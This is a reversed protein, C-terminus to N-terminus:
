NLRHRTLPMSVIITTGWDLQSEIEVAGDHLDILAIAVALGLQGTSDLFNKPLDPYGRRRTAEVIEDRTM